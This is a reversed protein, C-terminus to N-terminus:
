INIKFKRSKSIQCLKLIIYFIERTTIGFSYLYIYINNTTNQTTSAAAPVGGGEVASPYIVDNRHTLLICIDLEHCHM